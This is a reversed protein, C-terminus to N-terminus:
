TLSWISTFLSSVAQQSRAVTLQGCAEEWVVEDCFVLILARYDYFGSYSARETSRRTTGFNCLIASPGFDPVFTQFVAPTDKGNTRTGTAGSHFQLQLSAIAYTRNVTKM